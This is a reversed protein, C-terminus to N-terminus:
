LFAIALPFVLDAARRLEAVGARKRLALYGLSLSGGAAGGILIGLTLDARAPAPLVNSDLFDALVARGVGLLAIFLGLSAAVAAFIAVGQMAMALPFPDRYAPKWPGQATTPVAVPADLGLDGTSM